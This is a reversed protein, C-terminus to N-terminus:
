LYKFYLFLLNLLFNNNKNYTGERPISGRVEQKCSLREVVSSYPRFIHSVICYQEGVGPISGPDAAHCAVMSVMVGCRCITGFGRISRPVELDETKREGLQAIKASFLIRLIISNAHM